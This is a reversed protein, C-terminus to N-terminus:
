DESRVFKAIMITPSLVGIIAELNALSQAVPSDPLIDGYGLTTLTVFSFYLFNSWNTASEGPLNFASPDMLLCLLYFYSFTIGTLLYFNIAALLKEKQPATSFLHKMLILMMGTQFLIICILAAYSFIISDLRYNSIIKLLILLSGSIELILRIRPSTTTLPKLVLVLSLLVLCSFTLEILTDESLVPSITLTAILTCLLLSLQSAPKSLIHIMIMTLHFNLAKLLHYGIM